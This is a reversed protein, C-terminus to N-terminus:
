GRGVLSRLRGQKKRGVLGRLRELRSTPRRLRRTVLAAVGAGALTVAGLTAMMGGSRGAPAAHASGGIPQVGRRAEAESPVMRSVGGDGGGSNRGVKNTPNQTASNAM